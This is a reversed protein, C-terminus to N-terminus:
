ILQAGRRIGRRTFDDHLTKITYDSIKTKLTKIESDDLKQAPYIQVPVTIDYSVNGTGSIGLERASMKQINQALVNSTPSLEAFKGAIMKGFDIIRMLATQQGETFVAEGKKLLAFMEDQALTSDGGVVGGTHLKVLKRIDSDSLDYLRKGNIWWVGSDDRTPTATLLRGLQGAKTANASAM